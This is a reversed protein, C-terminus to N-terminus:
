PPLEQGNALKLTSVNVEMIVTDSLHEVTYELVVFLAALQM